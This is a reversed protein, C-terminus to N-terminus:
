EFGSAPEKNLRPIRQAAAIQAVPDAERGELLPAALLNLSSLAPLHGARLAAVLGDASAVQTERLNLYELCPLPDNLAFAALPNKRLHAKRLLPCHSLPAADALCNEAAWLERLGPCASLFALSALRNGRIELM